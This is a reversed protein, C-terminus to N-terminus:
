PPESFIQLRFYIFCFVKPRGNEENQKHYTFTCLFTHIYSHSLSILSFQSIQYYFDAFVSKLEFIIHAHTIQAWAWAQAARVLVCMCQPNMVSKYKHPLRSLQNWKTTATTTVPSCCFNSSPIHDAYSTAFRLSLRRLLNMQVTLAFLLHITSLSTTLYTLQFHLISTSFIFHHNEQIIGALWNSSALVRLDNNFAQSNLPEGVGSQIPTRNHAYALM